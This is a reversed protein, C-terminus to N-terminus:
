ADIAGGDCRVIEKQTLPAPLCDFAAIEFADACQLLLARFARFPMQPLQFTAPRAEALIGIMHETLLDYLGGLWSRRDHHFVEWAHQRHPCVARLLRREWLTKM